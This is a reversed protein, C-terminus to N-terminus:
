KKYNPNPTQEVINNGYVNKYKQFDCTKIKTIIRSGNRFLLGNQTKLVLGEADYDKNEAITSKFGKKVYDCAEDITMYGIIPVIPINLQSAIKELDERRLWWNEVRVDFLIFGVDNKIYNGGKQIKMGYGEGFITIKAPKEYLNFVEILKEKKFLEDMKKLLHDPIQAKDTRGKFEIQADVCKGNEIKLSLM